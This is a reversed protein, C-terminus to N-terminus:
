LLFHPLHLLPSSFQTKTHRNNFVLHIFLDHHHFHNIFMIKQVTWRVRESRQGRVELQHKFRKAGSKVPADGDVIHHERPTRAGQRPHTGKLALLTAVAARTFNVPQVAVSVGGRHISRFSVVSKLSFQTLCLGM